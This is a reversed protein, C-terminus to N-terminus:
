IAFRTKLRQIFILRSPTMSMLEVKECCHGLVVKALQFTLHQETTSTSDWLCRRSVDECNWIACFLTFYRWLMVTVHDWSPLLETWCVRGLRKQVISSSQRINGNGDSPGATQSSRFTQRQEWLGCIHPSLRLYTVFLYSSSSYRRHPRSSLASRRALHGNATEASAAQFPPSVQILFLCEKLGALHLLSGVCPPCVRELWSQM